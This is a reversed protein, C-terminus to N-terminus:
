ARVRLVTSLREADQCAFMVVTTADWSIAPRCYAIKAQRLQRTLQRARGRSGHGSTKFVILSIGDMFHRVHTKENSFRDSEAEANALVEATKTLQPIWGRRDAAVDTTAVGAAGAAIGGALGAIMQRRNIMTVDKRSLTESAELLKATPM